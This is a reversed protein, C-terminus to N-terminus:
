KKLCDRQDYSCENNVLLKTNSVIYQIYTRSVLDIFFPFIELIKKNIRTFNIAIVTLIMHFSLRISGRIRVKGNKMGRKTEKVTAEVNARSFKKPEKLKSMNSHRTHALINEQNFYYRRGNPQKKSSRKNLKCQNKIPCDKCIDESFFAKRRYTGDERLTTKISEVKQGGGCEVLYRGEEKNSIVVNASSKRGKISKQYLKIKGETIKDVQPSGYQGDIFYEKLSPTRKLMQPLRKELIEADGINNPKIVVDTILDVENQPNVTESIHTVYGNSKQTNKKRFTAETDDPSLLSSSQIENNPKYTISGSKIDFHENLVRIFNKYALDAKYKGEVLKYIEKYVQAIKFYEKPLDEKTVHYIYNSSSNTNYDSLIEQLSNKDKIDLIRSIRIIIEILLRLRTYSVINSGVLFSDGRQISTDVKYEQIQGQTLQQFVNDLLDEGTQVLHDILRKQFNFISAESFVDEDISNIGIAHRTLLNFNLNQFLESYTWNNLHKLILAGVIQNIPANPRSVKSSYLVSFKSEDIKIFIESFFNHERSSNWLKGQKKSIINSVSFISQQRYSNNLKFM